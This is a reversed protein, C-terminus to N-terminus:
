SPFVVTGLTPLEDALPVIDGSPTSLEFTRLGQKTDPDSARKIACKYEDEYLTPDPEKPYDAGFNVDEEFFQKLNAKIAM